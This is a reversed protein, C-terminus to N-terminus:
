GIIEDVKNMLQKREEDSMGEIMSGHKDMAHQLFQDKVRKRDEGETKFECKVGLDSCGIDHM